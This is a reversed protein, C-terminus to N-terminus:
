ASVKQGSLAAIQNRIEAKMAELPTQKARIASVIVIEADFGLLKLAEIHRQVEHGHALYWVRPKTDPYMADLKASQINAQRQNM